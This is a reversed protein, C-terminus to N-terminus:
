IVKGGLLAELKGAIQEAKIAENEADQAASTAEAAAILHNSCEAGKQEAHNRLEQITSTFAGVITEVSKPKFGLM